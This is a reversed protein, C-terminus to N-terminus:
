QGPDVLRARGGPFRRAAVLADYVVQEYPTLELDPGRRELIVRMAIHLGGTDIEDPLRGHERVFEVVGPKTAYIAATLKLEKDPITRKPM